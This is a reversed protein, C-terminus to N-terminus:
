PCPVHLVPLRVHFARDRVEMLFDIDKNEVARLVEWPKGALSIDILRYISDCVEPDKWPGRFKNTKAKSLFRQFPSTPPASIEPSSAPPSPPSDTIRTTM